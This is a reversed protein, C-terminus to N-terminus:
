IRKGKRRPVISPMFPDIAFANFPYHMVSEYDYRMGSAAADSDTTIECDPRFEKKINSRNMWVYKGRDFRSMEHFFGLALLSEHQIGGITELCGGVTLLVRQQGGQKGINSSCGMGRDIYINNSENTRPVFKVCENSSGSILAMALEIKLKEERRDDELFDPGFVFPVRGDPWKKDRDLIVNNVGTSRAVTKYIGAIDGQFNKGSFASHTSKGRYTAIMDPAIYNEWDRPIHAHIKSCLLIFAFFLM